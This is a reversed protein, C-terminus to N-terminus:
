PTAEARYFREKMGLSNTDTFGIIGSPTNNTIMSIWNTLDSSALIVRNSKALGILQARFFGNGDIRADTFRLPADLYLSAPQSTASGAANSVVVLYRGEDAAQFNSRTLSPATAGPITTSNFLWQYDPAPTATEVVSLMAQGGAVVTQSQPQSSILPPTQAFNKITITHTTNANLAAGSPSDQGAHRTGNPRQILMEGSPM